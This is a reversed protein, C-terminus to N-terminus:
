DWGLFENEHEVQINDMKAITNTLADIRSNLNM